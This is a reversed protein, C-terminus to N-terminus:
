HPVDKKESPMWPECIGGTIEHECAYKLTPKSSWSRGNVQGWIIILYVDRSFM